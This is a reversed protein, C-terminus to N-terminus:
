RGQRATLGQWGLQERCCPCFGADKSDTDHLTNSFHMVCRRNPCHVLGWTHGLEHVVEKLVRARFLAPEEPWGYFSQRLRPLAVVAERGGMVAQGFIFNLGPAYCDAETLGVRREAAPDHLSRLTALLAEGGYQRRHAHYGAAPLAVAEGIVVDRGVLDVLQHGLWSLFEPSVPGLPVLVIPTSM